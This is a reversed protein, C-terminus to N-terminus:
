IFPFFTYSEKYVKDNIIMLEQDNLMLCSIIIKKGNSLTFIYYYLDFWPLRGLLFSSRKEISIVEYDMFYIEGEDDKWYCATKDGYRDMMFVSNHNNWYYNSVLVAIMILSLTYIGLYIALHREINILETLHLVYILIPAIFIFLISNSIRKLNVRFQDKETKISSHNM